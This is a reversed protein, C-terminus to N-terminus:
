PTASGTPAPSAAPQSAAPSAAPPAPTESAAPSAVPSGNAAPSAPAGPSAPIMSAAVLADLHAQVTQALDSGPDLQIVKTWESQVGAWDPTTQNLYLFGLDYHVEVNDPAIDAVQKWTSEATPLDGLNFSVAGKALLAQVNKPDIALLKDLWEGASSYDQGAYFADALGLLTTTDNPDAAYKTMLQAVQAQDVAPASPSAQAVDPTPAPEANNGNVIANAGFGIAFVAIVAAGGLAIKKWIGGSAPESATVDARRRSRVGKSPAPAAARARRRPKADPAMDAHASPTVAAYLSDFDTGIEEDDYTDDDILDDDVVDDDLTDAVAPITTAPVSDRRAPPTAPGGPVVTPPRTPSRLASGELGVPDTLKLYASDLASAQAHAWGRLSSPAAALYESAAEHLADVDEPSASPPLGLQSLLENELAAHRTAPLVRANM